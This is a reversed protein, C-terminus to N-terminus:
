KSVLFKSCQVITDRWPSNVFGNAINQKPLDPLQSTFSLIIKTEVFCINPFCRGMEAIVKGVKLAGM